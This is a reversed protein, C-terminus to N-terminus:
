IKNLMDAVPLSKLPSHEKSNQYHQMSYNQSYETQIEALIYKPYIGLGSITPDFPFAYSIKSSVVLNKAM